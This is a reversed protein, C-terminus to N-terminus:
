LEVELGDEGVEAGASLLQEREKADTAALPNSAAVHVYVSRGSMGALHVLSGAAGDIPLHGLELCTRAGPRLRRGEDAAHCTGDVFRLDAESLEALTASDLQELRPAWVLRAGSRRDTIRVGCRARGARTSRDRLHDPVPGPLPFLRAELHEDRDLVFPRDWGLGTSLPDHTVFAADHDVLESRLSM